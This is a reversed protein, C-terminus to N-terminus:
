PYTKMDIFVVVGSTSENEAGIRKFNFIIEGNFM